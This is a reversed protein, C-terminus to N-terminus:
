KNNMKRIMCHFEETTGSSLYGFWSQFNETMREHRSEWGEDLCRVCCNVPDLDRVRRAAAPGDGASVCGIFWPSDRPDPPPAAASLRHFCWHFAIFSFAGFMDAAPYLGCSAFFFVASSWVTTEPLLLSLTHAYLTKHTRTVTHLHSSHSPLFSETFLSWIPLFFIVYLGFTLCDVMYNWKRSCTHSLKEYLGEHRLWDGGTNATNASM